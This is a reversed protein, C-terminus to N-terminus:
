CCSVPPHTAAQCDETLQGVCFYPAHQSPGTAPATSEATSVDCWLVCCVGHIRASWHLCRPPFELLGPLLVCLLKELKYFGLMDSPMYMHM